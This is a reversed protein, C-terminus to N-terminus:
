PWFIPLKEEYRVPYLLSAKTRGGDGNSFDRPPITERIPPCGIRSNGERGKCRDPDICTDLFFKGFPLVPIRYRESTPVGTVTGGGPCWNDDNTGTRKLFGSM